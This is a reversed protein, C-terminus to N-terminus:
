ALWCEMKGGDDYNQRFRKVFEGRTYAHNQPGNEELCYVAALSGVQGCLQWDWGRAYASLFGGRFADGVGTPDVIRREPVAPVHVMDGDAYVVAGQAGRTVVLIDVHELMSGVELGTKKSILGLEYDNVFLFHAGEM